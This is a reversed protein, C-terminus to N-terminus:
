LSPVTGLCFSVQPHQDVAVQVHALVTPLALPMRAQPPGQLLVPLASPEGRSLILWTLGEM